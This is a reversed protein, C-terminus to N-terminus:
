GKVAGSTLGSIFDRQLLLFLLLLPAISVLTGAMLLGYEQYYVGRLQAVTVALPFNSPTQLVVQPTLFNNWTGLFTIMLFASVMPMVLPLAIKFFASIDGCGDIRAAELLQPPVSSLTAQRFLYVGFAPAAAPLILGAMTDLLGLQFLLQYGPALLLTPPIIIAALVLSEALRRGPFRLRALAFGGMAAAMTAVVATVSALFVSILAARGIGLQALSRFHDLTLREWAVGLFGSGAPLFRSTFFDENRKLSACVLWILPIIILAASALLVAHVLAGGIRGSDASQAQQRIM